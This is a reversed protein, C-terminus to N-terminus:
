FRGFIRARLEEAVFARRKLRLGVTDPAGNMPGGGNMLYKNVERAMSALTDLSWKMPDWRRADPNEDLFEGIGEDGWVCRHCMTLLAAADQAEIDGGNNECLELREAEVVEKSLRFRRHCDDCVSTFRSWSITAVM